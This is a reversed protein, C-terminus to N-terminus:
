ELMSGSYTVSGPSSLNFVFLLLLKPLIRQKRAKQPPPAVVSSILENASDSPGTHWYQIKRYKMCKQAYLQRAIFNSYYTVLTSTGSDCASDIIAVPTRINDTNWRNITKCFSLGACSRTKWIKLLLIIIALLHSLDGVLRFVNM